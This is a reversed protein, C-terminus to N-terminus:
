LWGALGRVLTTEVPTFGLQCLHTGIQSSLPAALKVMVQPHDRSFRLIRRVLGAGAWTNRYDPLVWLAVIDLYPEGTFPHLLLLGCAFGIILDRQVAVWVTESAVGLSFLQEACEPKVKLHPFQIACDVFGGADDPTALRVTTRRRSRIPTTSPAAPKM